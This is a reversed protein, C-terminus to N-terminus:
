ATESKPEVPTGDVAVVAGDEIVVGIKGSTDVVEIWLQYDQAKAMAAIESLSAEDLLSADQIRIVRLKPNAAMAIALSVKMKVSSSAQEFPIGEYTIFGDSFALGEVPMQAGAIAAEKRSRRATMNATLQEARDEIIEAEALFAVKRGRLELKSNVQRAHELEVRIDAVSVPPPLPDLADLKRQVADAGSEM